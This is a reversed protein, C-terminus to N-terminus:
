ASRTRSRSSRAGDAAGDAAGAVAPVAQPLPAPRGAERHGVPAAACPEVEGPVLYAMLISMVRTHPLHNDYVARLRLQDGASVPIGERSVTRSMSVPSPEHLIPRVRYFIHNPMAYYAQSRILRRNGCSTNTVRRTGAAATCTDRARRHDPRGRPRHLHADDVYNSGKPGDGPVTYTPDLDCGATDLWLPTVETKPTDSYTIKTRVYVKFPQARHNMLM